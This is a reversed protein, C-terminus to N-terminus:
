QSAPARRKLPKSLGCGMQPRVAPSTLMQQLHDPNTVHLGAENLTQAKFHAWAFLSHCPGKQTDSVHGPPPHQLSTAPALSDLPWRENLTRLPGSHARALM